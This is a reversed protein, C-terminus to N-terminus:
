QKVTTLKIFPILKFIQMNQKTRIFLVRKFRTHTLKSRPMYNLLESQQNFNLGIHIICRQFLAKQLVYPPPPTPPTASCYCFFQMTFDSGMAFGYLLLQKVSSDVATCKSSRLSCTLASNSKGETYMELRANIGMSLNASTGYLFLGSSSKLLGPDRVTCADVCPYCTCKHQHKTSLM